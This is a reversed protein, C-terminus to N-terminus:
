KKVQKYLADAVTAYDLIGILQGNTLLPVDSLGSELKEYVQRITPPQTFAQERTILHPFARWDGQTLKRGFDRFENQNAALGAIADDIRLLGQFDGSEEAYFALYRIKESARTLYFLMERDPYYRRSESNVVFSLVSKKQPDLRDLESLLASLGGKTMEDINREAPISADWDRPDTMSPPADIPRTVPHAEVPADLRITTGTGSVSVEVPRNQLTHFFQTLEARFARFMLFLIILVFVLTLFHILIQTLDLAEFKFIKQLMNIIGEM